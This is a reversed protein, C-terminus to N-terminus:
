LSIVPMLNLSLPLVLYSIRRPSFTKRLNLDWPGPSTICLVFSHPFSTQTNSTNSKVKVGSINAWARYDSQIGSSDNALLSSERQHLYCSADKEDKGIERGCRGRKGRMCNQIARGQGYVLLGRTRRQLCLKYTIWPHLSRHREGM